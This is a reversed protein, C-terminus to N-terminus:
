TDALLASYDKKGSSLLPLSDVLRLRCLSHHIGFQSALWHKAQELLTPDATELWLVLREDRGAAMAPLSLMVSAFSACLISRLM